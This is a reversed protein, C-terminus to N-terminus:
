ANSALSEHAGLRLREQRRTEFSALAWLPFIQRYLDYDLLATRFFLGVPDQRPWCGSATQTEILFRAGRKIACWDPERAEILALLAWATQVVQSEEHEVYEDRLCGVHSEGWGGDERQRDLLWRRARRLAPDGPGAGSAILGRVGFLTGYILHVGWVGRWSGDPRQLARLRTTGRVIAKHINRNALDPFRTAFHSLAAICSATCEVYSHETMSDGFIEAPNLWELGVRTRRAEYSGFGGDPNQCRLVFKAGARLRLADNSDPSVFGSDPGPHAGSAVVAPLALLAEMAEATCDSVPWGHWDNAFCWGGDPDLRFAEEYGHADSRIQQGRLFTAGEAIAKEVDHHAATAHLAQLAFASDWSASRAGAIRTGGEADEWIWAELQEVAREIEQDDARGAHLALINLLGSVPSLSTHDTTRLEWRIREELETLMRRRLRISPRREYVAALEFFIRLPWSPPTVLEEARLSRRARTWDIQDFEGDYLENRIANLRPSDPPQLKRAYVVSMSLYIHRTHCYFNSPHFPLAPPLAWIEPIVPSVGRWDFLGVIALWFKGWSPISDIGERRIFRRARALMPDEAEVGLLRAAVYVLATVFLYPPSTPHLGWLGSAFRTREFHRLLGDRRAPTMEIRMVHCFLTYQAALMPCWVVEGEWGGVADAIGSGLTVGVTPQGQLDVLRDGARAIAAVTADSHDSIDSAEPNAARSGSMRGPARGPTTKASTSAGTAGTALWRARGALERLISRAHGRDGRILARASLSALAPATVRGFTKAFAAFQGPEGAIYRMTRAREADNKRWLAYIGQRMAVSTEGSDSFVEYLVGALREAVRTDRRRASRWNEIEDYEALSVADSMGVTMGAATLPHQFGVADGVLFLGERGYSTRTRIQNAAWSIAGTALERRFSAHLAEPLVRSYADWLTAPDTPLSSPVDICLRVADAEIRYALIPGPGGLFVHGFGSAPLEVGALRLGAMRSITKTAPLLGAEARARSTRGDAGIIRDARLENWVTAGANRDTGRFFLRQGEIRTVRVNELSHIGPHGSAQKRLRDVLGRHEGSWGLRDDSYPLEIPDSGDDPHVVFGRGSDFPSTSRLDIGLEALIEVARPHLWEGALRNAADPNAELLWVRAGARAHALAATCGVPGAGIVAVDCIEQNTSV